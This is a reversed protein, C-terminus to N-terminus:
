NYKKARTILRELKPEQEWPMGPHLCEAPCKEASKVIDSFKNGKPDKVTVQKSANYVFVNPAQDICEGCATCDPSDVWVPEYDPLAVAGAPAAEAKAAKAPKVPAPAAAAPEAPKAPAAVSAQVSAPAAAPKPEPALPAAVPSPAAALAAALGALTSPTPAPTAPAVVAALAAPASAVPAAPEAPAPAAEIAAAAFGEEVEARVRSEIAAVDVPQAVIDKLQRWFQQREECSRVLEEAVILRMLRGKADTAWIYPFRGVREDGPLDLLEALPIMSDNWTERPAKRFHKSFRAETAAFDAFTVPLDLRAKEGKEDLYELQYSPWDADVAPNGELSACASFEVGADPDYRFLPYARSEVALKSQAVTRDDGVGHEPPCVSYINFVAPRRSNLGDIYGELLHSVHAVTSQLMFTSRHAMGIISIEKRIETKGHRASGYPAMDSVQSVFGSTCAQGGTNSYVQTDVVLVKIPKGAMMMRSLNQFGIDYMAGDGGVSVVPPCLLWEEDSFHEYTFRNFFDRDREEVFAGKLEMEAMRVIKFGEAMKAMHGEFLGMAVSPSDQFLHSTWPFPYPHYPYTSAWVSTCGTSNVMGMTARGRRTPGEVYRWRLDKLSELLQAGRKVWNADLPQSPKGDNLKSALASLTLDHPASSDVARAVAGADSLDVAQALSLRIHQELNQILSDLKGVFAKVRPQMLASVTSTFLHIATKEGCGLCAGDGCTMANYNTKDLLLTDLAGVKEDLSDIRSFEKGTTPLDLWLNWDRRLTAISDETQTVMKLAKDDCVDVCLACAKCTLPNVTISFLGGGGGKKEKGSWYPKTAAFAFTGLEAKLLEFESATAEREEAPADAVVQAFAQDILPRVAVGDNPGVLARLKREAGRLARRLFKTPTGAREVRSLATNFVESVSNVLGPIASDPCVTYCKGCATCNEAVWEPHEFRIGTMDRFIGSAAPILSAGIFPDLLNDNGKGTAYFHGTQEWFRHMDAVPPLSKDGAPCAKLMIPLSSKASVQAPAGVKKETIEHIETYGRKVVTLNNQVVRAGKGGFKSDLQKEIARFLTQESLGANDCVPSAAFFAGQFANGQMRLHLEPSGAEERAIKFADLYYVRLDNDVIQQQAWRPFAAWTDDGLNSQIIFVGGKKLGTLPNSHGFVAPDPSLVVDLHVYESNVRIPEPAASLYYTTPQGKKESGYKPNAKIEWNLLDFLTMALNKGTTIAGWGGISHMRVTIAGPPMLNPNESGHVVMKAAQPYAGQFAQQHLEDKPHDPERAVDVSLYFFKRKPGMALMNEVAGILGEPQLDRSGLGYCGSYLRPMDSPSLSPYGVHPPAGAYAAEMANEQCKQLAARVERMLPLDEALPQDTRELVAVGKKGRLVAGVLDGPFPRFMTLNVVGVRLRRTARLYDAVAEAQVVMSGMGFIVYEADECRYSSLRSYRRGTLEAYEDMCTDALQRVEDFFYPRQAAVAQMYADQNQVSGSVMPVDVDWISPVRRRKPGYLMKQAPTPTDILDDPKGLYEAVLAREPLTVSEILHTTLFGDQGVIAPTLSLEALRRAILNLDAAETANKAMVQIFGTDDVCHYDDHGAHVNLSAKTIARCGMNLVYPLRKGVTAYLSEHMFAIGQGSSFNTARLGTMAMGATVAAAAHESEPEVFILPRDSVNLHGAAAEEAWYEGMQTSPTIPYAGAADSAEREVHIIATNGDVADRVGPYKVSAQEPARAAAGTLTDLIKKLM